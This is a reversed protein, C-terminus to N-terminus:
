ADPHKAMWEIVDNKINQTIKEVSMGCRTFHPSAFCVLNVAIQMLEFDDMGNDDVVKMIAETVKNTRKLMQEKDM